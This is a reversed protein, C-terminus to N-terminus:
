VRRTLVIIGIAAVISGVLGIRNDELLIGGWIITVAGTVLMALGVAGLIRRDLIM